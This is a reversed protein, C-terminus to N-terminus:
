SDQSKRTKKVPPAAEEIKGAEDTIHEAAAPKVSHSRSPKKLPASAEEIEDLIAETIQEVAVAQKINLQDKSDAIFEKISTLESVVAEVQKPTIKKERAKASGGKREGRSLRALLEKVASWTRIDPHTKTFEEYTPFRVAFARMRSLESLSTGIEAAILSLLARERNPANQRAKQHQHILLATEHRLPLTKEDFDKWKEKIQEALAKDEPKLDRGELGAVFQADDEENERDWQQALSEEHKQAAAGSGIRREKSSSAM